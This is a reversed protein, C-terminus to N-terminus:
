RDLGLKTVDGAFPIRKAEKETIRRGIRDYGLRTAVRMDNRAARDLFRIAIYRPGEQITVEAERRDIWWQARLQTTTKPGNAKPNEIRVSM